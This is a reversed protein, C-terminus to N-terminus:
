YSAVSSRRRHLGRHGRNSHGGTPLFAMGSGSAVNPAGPLAVASGAVSAGNRASAWFRRQHQCRGARSTNRLRSPESHSVDPCLGTRMSASMSGCRISAAAPARGEHGLDAALVVVEEGVEGGRRRRLRGAAARGHAVERGLEADGLAQRDEGTAEPDQGAVVQLRRGVEGHREGAHAEHVPLAVEALAERGVAVLLLQVLVGAELLEGDGPREVRGAGLDGDVHREGAAGDHGPHPRGRDAPHAQVQEVGVVGGVLGVVTPDGLVQVAAVDLGSQALLDEEADAAVAGELREAHGGAREVHVLAM